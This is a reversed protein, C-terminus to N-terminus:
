HFSSHLSPDYDLSPTSCICNRTSPTTSSIDLQAGHLRPVKPERTSVRRVRNRIFFMTAYQSTLIVANEMAFNCLIDKFCMQLSTSCIAITADLVPMDSELASSSKVVLCRVFGRLPDEGQGFTEDGSMIKGRAFHGDTVSVATGVLDGTAYSRSVGVPHPGLPREWLQYIRLEPFERRVREHLEKAFKNEYEDTHQFYIHVDFGGRADNSIPDPFREYAASRTSPPPNILSKAHPGSTHKEQPLPTLDAATYGELPSPYTYEYPDAMPAYSPEQQTTITRQQLHSKLTFDLPKSRWLHRSINITRTPSLRWM